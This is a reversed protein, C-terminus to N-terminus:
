HFEGTLQEEAGAVVEKNASRIFEALSEWAPRFVEIDEATSNNVFCPRETDWYYDLLEPSYNALLNPLNHLHDAEVACRASRDPWDAARIRLLGITLIDTIIEVIEPPCQM